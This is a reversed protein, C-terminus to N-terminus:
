RGRRRAACGVGGRGSCRVGGGTGLRSCGAKRRAPRHGPDPATCTGRTGSRRRMWPWPWGGAALLGGGRADVAVVAPVSPDPGARRGGGGAGCPEDGGGRGERFPMVGVQAFPTSRCAPRQPPQLPHSPRPAPPRRGSAPALVVVDATAGGGRRAGKHCRVKSRLACGSPGAAWPDATRIRWRPLRARREAAFGRLPPRASPRRPRMGADGLGVGGRAGVRSSARTSGGSPRRVRVPRGVMPEPHEPARRCPHPLTREVASSRGVLHDWLNRGSHRELAGGPLPCPGAAGLCTAAASGGGGLWASSRAPRKGPSGRPGKRESRRARGAM